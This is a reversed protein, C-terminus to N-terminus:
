GLDCYNIWIYFAAMKIHQCFPNKINNAAVNIAL